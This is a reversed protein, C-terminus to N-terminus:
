IEAFNLIKDEENEIALVRNGEIRSSFSIDDVGAYVWSLMGDGNRCLKWSQVCAVVGFFEVKIIRNGEKFENNHELKFFNCMKKVITLKCPAM